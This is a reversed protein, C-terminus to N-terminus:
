SSRGQQACRPPMTSAVPKSSRGCAAPTKFIRWRTRRWCWSTRSSARNSRALRRRVPRARGRGHGDRGAACGASQAGIRGAVGARKAAGAGAAAQGVRFLRHGGAVACRGRAADRRAAAAQSIRRSRNGSQVDSVDFIAPRAERMFAERVDEPVDANAPNDADIAYGDLSLASDVLLTPDFFVRSDAILRVLRQMPESELEFREWLLTERRAVPLPDLRDAEDSPLLERGTIRIHELCDMGLQIARTM